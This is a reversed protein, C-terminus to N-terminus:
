GARDMSAGARPSDFAVNGFDPIETM